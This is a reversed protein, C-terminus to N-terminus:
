GGAGSMRLLPTQTAASRIHQACCIQDTAVCVGAARSRCRSSYPLVRPAAESSTPLRIVSAAPYAASLLAGGACERGARSSGRSDGLLHGDGMAPQTRGRTGPVVRDNGDRGRGGAAVVLVRSAATPMTGRQGPDDEIGQQRGGPDVPAPEVAEDGGQALLQTSTATARIPDTIVVERPHDIHQINARRWALYRQPGGPPGRGALRWRCARGRDRHGTRWAARVLSPFIGSAMPHRRLLRRGRLCVVGLRARGKSQFTPRGVRPFKQDDTSAPTPREVFPHLGSPSCWM